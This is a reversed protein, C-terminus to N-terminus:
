LNEYKKYIESLERKVTLTVDQEPNGITINYVKKEMM